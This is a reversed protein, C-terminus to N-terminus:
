HMNLAAFMLVRMCVILSKIRMITRETNLDILRFTPLIAPLVRLSESSSSRYHLSCVVSDFVISDLVISDSRTVLRPSCVRRVFYQVQNSLCM